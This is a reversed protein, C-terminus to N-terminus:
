LSEGVETSKEADEEVQRSNTAETGASAEAEKGKNEQSWYDGEGGAVRTEGGKKAESMNEPGPTEGAKAAGDAKGWYNQDLTHLKDGCRMLDDNANDAMKDFYNAGPLNGVKREMDADREYKRIRADDSEMREGIAKREEEYEKFGMPKDM